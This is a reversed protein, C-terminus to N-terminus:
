LSLKKRFGGTHAHEYEDSEMKLRHKVFAHLAFMEARYKPNVLQMIRKRIIYKNYFDKIHRYFSNKDFRKAHDLVWNTKIEIWIRGKTFTKTKGNSMATEVDHADYTHIYLNYQIELYETEDRVALWVYQREVGFPSPHKHKYIKEHFKYKRKRFWDAISEYLDQMDWIGKFRIYTPPEPSPEIWAGEEAM